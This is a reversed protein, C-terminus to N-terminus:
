SLVEGRGKSVESLVESVIQADLFYHKVGMIDQYDEHGKGAILVVDGASAASIAMTIARKRDSDVRYDMETSFGTTIMKIIVDPNETRPNDSTIIVQDAFREAVKAMLARKTQDRDGGCGFVVFLQQQTHIRCATLAKELADPTHAYDVVCLPQQHNENFRVQQMRGPVPTLAALSQKIQELSYGLAYLSTACLMLNAVNFKGILATNIAISKDKVTLEFNLGQQLDVDLAVFDAESGETESYRYLKHINSSDLREILQQNYKDDRNLVCHNAAFDTFLRAKADAYSQMTGHYDLHDQSLNTYAVLNFPVGQVRGQELAHSSVEMVVAQAGQAYFQAFLQQLSCADPTTRSAEELANPHGNGLTGIIYTNVGLSNLSQALYHACSTKGNTGTVGIINLKHTVNAFVKAAIEGVKFVLGAIAIVPVPYGEFDVDADTANHKDVLIAVAGLTVAKEIFDTGKFHEGDRAVFLDGVTMQRSDEKIGSVKLDGCRKILNESTKKDVFGELVDSLLMPHKVM